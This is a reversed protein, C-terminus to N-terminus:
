VMVRQNWLRIVKQRVEELNCNTDIIVQARKAKEEPPMQSQIRARVQEEKLGNRAVIRQVAVEEPAVAVWVEDALPHWGAEFLIAADLVLARTGRKNHSEIQQEAIEYMRPHLIHNLRALAQPDGFVIAGLKKRDISNDPLLIEKGFEKVVEEWGETHPEYAQHGVKDMDIIEAGLEKLFGAVTSKGSGIGGTLGIVLM